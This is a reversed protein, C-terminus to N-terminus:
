VLMMILKNQFLIPIFKTVASIDPIRPIGPTIASIKIWNNM